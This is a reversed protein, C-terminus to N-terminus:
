NIKRSSSGVIISNTDINKTIVTNAGIISNDGIKVGSLITCKDGIWVNNGIIIEGKSVLERESPHVTEFSLLKNNGHSNDNITINRGLLVGNGISISNIASIHCNGGISTRDGIEISPTFNQNLYNDWATLVINDHFVVDHGVSIYKAGILKQFPSAVSGKGFSKFRASIYGSYFFLKTKIIYVHMKPTYILSFFKGALFIVKKM